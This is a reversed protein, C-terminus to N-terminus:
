KKTGVIQDVASMINESLVNVNMKEPIYGRINGMGQAIQKAVEIRVFAEGGPVAYTKLKLEQATAEARGLAEIGKAKEEAALRAGQAELQLKRSEAESKLIITQKDREAEVVAKNLDAQALSKAVLAQAEAAKQEEVSRLQKQTAVQKQKIESIYNPDLEIHEIVFNEVIIGSQALEGNAASLSTQIQSQLEVLGSGSYADIAKKTTAEDKIIRLMVPRILKEEIKQRLQTHLTVLKTPNIRWRLNSSITMDQGEASQVLYAPSSAGPKNSMEFIQSSGDYTIITQSWGPFLFYTKPGLVQPVVGEKWTEKIGLENGKVTKIEISVAALIAGIVMLVGIIIVKRLSANNKM